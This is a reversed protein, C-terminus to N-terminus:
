YNLTTVQPEFKVASYLTHGDFMFNGLKDKHQDMLRRKRRTNDEEPLFDVRYGYLTFKAQKSMLFYNTVVEQPSGVPARDTGAGASMSSTVSRGDDDKKKECLGPPLSSSMKSDGTEEISGVYCVIFFVYM